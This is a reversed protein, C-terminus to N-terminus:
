ENKLHRKSFTRMWEAVIAFSEKRTVGFERQVYWGAGWMNTIGTERLCDLFRFYQDRENETM